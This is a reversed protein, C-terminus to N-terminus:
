TLDERLNALLQNGSAMKWPQVYARKHCFQKPEYLSGGVIHPKSELDSTNSVADSISDSSVNQAPRWRIKFGKPQVSAPSTRNGVDPKAPKTNREPYVAQSSGWRSPKDLSMHPVTASRLTMSAPPALLRRRRRCTDSAPM